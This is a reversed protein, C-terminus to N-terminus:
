KLKLGFKVILILYKLIKRQLLQRPLNLFFLLSKLTKKKGVLKKNNLAIGIIKSPSLPCVLDHKSKEFTDGFEFNISNFSFNKIEVIKDKEIKGFKLSNSSKFKVIEM